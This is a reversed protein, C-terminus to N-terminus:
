IFVGPFSNLLCAPVLFILWLSLLLDLTDHPAQVGFNGCYTISVDLKFLIIFHAVYWSIISGVCSFLLCCFIGTPPQSKLNSLVKFLGCLIHEFFYLFSPNLFLLIGVM